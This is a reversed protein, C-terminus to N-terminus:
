KCKTKNTPKKTQKNKHPNKQNKTKQTKKSAPDIYDLSAKFKL